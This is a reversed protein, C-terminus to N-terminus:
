FFIKIVILPIRIYWLAFTLYYFILCKRRTGCFNIQGWKIRADPYLIELKKDNDEFFTVDDSPNSYKRHIDKYSKM